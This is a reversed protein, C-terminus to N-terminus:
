EWRPDAPRNASDERLSGTRAASHSSCSSKDARSAAWSQASRYANCGISAAEFLLIQFPPFLSHTLIFFENFHLVQLLIERCAASSLMLFEDLCDVIDREKDVPSLSEAEDALGAAAFSGDSARQESEILGRVALYDVVSINNEILFVFHRDIHQGESALHLHNELIGIRAKVRAHRYAIDYALGDIDVMEGGVLRLSSLLYDGKKLADSEVALVCVAVRVLEGATLALSDTYRSSKRDIGLEDDAILRDGREVDGNLRLDDIHKLVQLRIESKSIQKNGVIEADNAMDRVADANHIEAFEHLKRVAELKDRVADVGICSAKDRCDGLCVGLRRSGRLADRKLAIDRARQIRRAAATEAGAAGIRVLLAGVLARLEPLYAGAMEGRAMMEILDCVSM